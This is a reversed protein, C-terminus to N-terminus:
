IVSAELCSVLEHLITEEVGGCIPCVFDYVLGRCHLITRVPRTVSEAHVGCFMLARPLEMQIGFNTGYHMHGVLLQYSPLTIGKLGNLSFVAARKLLTFEMRLARGVYLM